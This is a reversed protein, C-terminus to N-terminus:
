LTFKNMYFFIAAYISRCQAEDFYSYSWSSLMANLQLQLLLVCCFIKLIGIIFIMTFMFKYLALSRAGHIWLHLDREFM